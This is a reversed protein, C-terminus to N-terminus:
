KKAIKITIGVAVGIILIGLLIWFAIGSGKWFAAGKKEVEVTQYITDTNNVYISDHKEILKDKYRTLWKETTIYVTDGERWRDRFISDHKYIYVSDHLYEIRVSDRNHTNTPTPLTKCSVFSFVILAIVIAWLICSIVKLISDNKTWRTAM